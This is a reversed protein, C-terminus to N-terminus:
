IKQFWGHRELDPKLAEWSEQLLKFRCERYSVIDPSNMLVKAQQETLNGAEHHLAIAMASATLRDWASPKTAPASIPPLKTKM